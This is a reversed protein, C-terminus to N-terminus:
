EKRRQPSIIKIEAEIWKFKAPVQIKHCELCYPVMGYRDFDKYRWDKHDCKM